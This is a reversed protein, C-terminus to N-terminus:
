STGKLFRGTMEVVRKTQHQIAGKIKEGNSINGKMDIAASTGYPNGGAAFISEDTYGTPVIICGWHMMTNYISKITGEQGGHPNIASSIASVVKNALKGQQWLGGTTDIFAQAQSPWNGYRTPISWIIADAWELDDLSANPEDKTKEAFEKWAENANIAEQPATEPLKHRRVDAGASEAAEAAWKSLQHNGGTSSYYLIALKVKEM